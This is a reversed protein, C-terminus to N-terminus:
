YYLLEITKRLEDVTKHTYTTVGTSGRPSHGLLKDICIPNAGLTDLRSRVTHRTEHIVHTMHLDLMLQEFARYYTQYSKNWLRGHFQELLRHLIPVIDPHIPVVRNKGAETKSGGVMVMKDFDITEDTLSLLENVRFGTFFLVIALDAIPEGAQSIVLRVETDTFPIREKQKVYEGVLDPAKKLKVIEREYAIQELRLWLQKVKGRLSPLTDDITKQMNSLKLQTFPVYELPEIYHWATRFVKRMSETLREEPLGLLIKYLQGVNINKEDVNIPYRNYEALLMMAEERTAAYGIVRQRGTVGERIIYPKRRKGSMKSVTGYHNPNKM